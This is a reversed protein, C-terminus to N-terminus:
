QSVRVAGLYTQRWYSSAAANVIHVGRNPTTHIMRGNGMYIGVHGVIRNSSYRGPWYFFVLDGKRLQSVPIYRARNTHRLAAQQRSTRPLSIGNVGFVYQTFSSCDFTRTSGSPAGFEYPTGIYRRATRIIADAKTSSLAPVEEQDEDDAESLDEDKPLDADKQEMNVMLVQDNLRVESGLLEQLAVTTIYAQGDYTAVEHSLNISEGESIAEASGKKVEYIIDTYGARIHEDDEAINFDMLELIRTLPIYIQGKELYVTVEDLPHGNIHLLVDASDEPFKKGLQNLYAEGESQFNQLNDNQFPQQCGCLGIMILLIILWKNPM